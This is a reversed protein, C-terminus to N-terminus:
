YKALSMGGISYYVSAYRIQSARSETGARVVEVISPVEEDPLAFLLINDKGPLYHTGLKPESVEGIGTANHTKM